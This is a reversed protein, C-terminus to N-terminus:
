WTNQNKNYNFYEKLIYFSHFYLYSKLTLKFLKTNYSLDKIEKPWSSFVKISFYYTGKQYTTMHTLPQHLNFTTRTNISHVESNLKFYNKSQIVFLSLSSIYQSQLPLIKLKRFHERCSERNWFGMIIRFSNKQLRFIYKSYYSNGQFIIGYEMISHFYSYYIKLSEHSLFYRVARIMFCASSLKLIITDTHTRWTLTNDLTIGLFKTNCINAIKKTKYTIYVNFLSSNKTVYQRFHTKDINLSLM